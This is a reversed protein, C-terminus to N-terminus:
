LSVNLQSALSECNTICYNLSRHVANQELWQYQDPHEKMYEDSPADWLHNCDYGFWWLDSVVPYDTSNDRSYTLGGHVDPYPDTLDNYDKGYLPHDKPVGVYGCRCGHHGMTVVARLGSETIWDKEVTYSM